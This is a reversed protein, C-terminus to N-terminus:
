RTMNTPDQELKVAPKHQGPIKGCSLDRKRFHHSEPKPGFGIEEIFQGRKLHTYAEWRSITDPLGGNTLNTIKGSTSDVIQLIGGHDLTPSTKKSESLLAAQISDMEMSGSGVKVDHLDTNADAALRIEALETVSASVVRGETRQTHIEKADLGTISPPDVRLIREIEPWKHFTHRGEKHKQTSIRSFM